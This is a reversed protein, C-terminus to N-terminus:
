NIEKKKKKKEEKKEKRKIEKKKIKVFCMDSVSGKIKPTWKTVIM